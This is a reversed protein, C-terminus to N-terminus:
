CPRARAMATDRLIHADGPRVRARNLQVAVCAFFDPSMNQQAHNLHFLDNDLDLLIHVWQGSPNFNRLYTELATYQDM